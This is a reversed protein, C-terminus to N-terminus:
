KHLYYANFLMYHSSQSEVSYGVEKLHQIVEFYRSKHDEERQFKNAANYILNETPLNLLLSKPDCKSLVVENLSEYTFHEFVDIACLLDPSSGEPIKELVELKINSGTVKNYENLFAMGDKIHQPNIEVSLVKYGLSRLLISLMMEGSGFDIIMSNEDLSDVPFHKLVNKIRSYFMYKKLPNKSTYPGLDLNEKTFYNDAIDRLKSYESLLINTTVMFILKLIIIALYLM